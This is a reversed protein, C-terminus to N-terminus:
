WEADDSADAARILALALLRAEDSDMKVFTGRDLYISVSLNSAQVDHRGPATYVTLEGDGM